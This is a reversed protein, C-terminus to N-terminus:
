FFEDYDAQSFSINTTYLIQYFSGIEQLIRSEDKLISHGSIKLECFFIITPREGKKEGDADRDLCLQKEKKSM